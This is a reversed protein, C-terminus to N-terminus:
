SSQETIWQCYGNSKILNFSTGLHSKAILYAKKEIEDLSDIYKLVNDQVCQPMSAFTTPLYLKYQLIISDRSTSINIPWHTDM